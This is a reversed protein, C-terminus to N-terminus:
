TKIKTGFTAVLGIEQDDCTLRRCDTDVDNLSVEERVAMDAAAAAAAATNDRIGAEQTPSPANSSTLPLVSHSVRVMKDATDAALDVQNTATCM